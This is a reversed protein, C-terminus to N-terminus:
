PAENEAPPPNLGLARLGATAEGRWRMGFALLCDLTEFHVRNGDALDLAARGGIPRRCGACISPAVREGHALHWACVARDLPSVVLVEGEIPDYTSAGEDKQDNQDKLQESFIYKVRPSRNDNRISRDELLGREQMRGVVLVVLDAAPPAALGAIRADLADLIAKNTM